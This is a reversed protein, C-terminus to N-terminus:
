YSKDAKSILYFAVESRDPFYSENEIKVGLPLKDDKKFRNLDSNTVAYLIKPDLVEALDERDKVKETVKSWSVVKYKDLPMNKVVETGFESGYAQAQSPPINAWFLFYLMPPDYSNSIYVQEYKDELSIIEKTVQEYGYGHWRASELPFHVLYRHFYFGFSVTWTLVLVSAGLLRWSSKFLEIFRWWGLGILILLPAAMLIMRSAHYAGDKTLNAPLPSTLFWIMLWQYQKERIRGVAYWLGIFLALIEPFLIVGMKGVGQRMNPDGSVLLFETSFSKAYNNRLNTLWSFLKNHFFYSSWVPKVGLADTKHIQADVERGRIVYIPVEPDSFVSIQSIRAEDASGITTAYVFPLIIVSALLVGTVLHKWGVSLVEKRFIFLVMLFSLPAYFSMIRYVYVGLSLFIIASYFWALKSTKIWKFLCVLFVSYFFLCYIAEFSIRSLQILWPSTALVLSVFISAKKSKTWLFALIGGFLVVLAGMLATTARVQLYPSKFILTAPISLYVPIPTKDTNFSRVFFPSFTGRYDRGNEILSRAQYGLDIEDYHLSAPVEDIKYLRLFLAIGVVLFLLWWKRVFNM